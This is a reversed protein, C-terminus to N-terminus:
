PATNSSEKVKLTGVKELTLPIKEMESLKLIYLKKEVQNRSPDRILPATILYDGYVRLVVLEPSQTMVQYEQRKEAWNRGIRHFSFIGYIVWAFLSIV